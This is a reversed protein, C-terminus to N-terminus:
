ASYSTPWNQAGPDSLARWALSIAGGCPSPPTGCWRGAALGEVEHVPAGIPVAVKPFVKEVTRGVMMAILEAETTEERRVSGVYGGDRLVKVRDAIRFIESMRHSVYLIAV